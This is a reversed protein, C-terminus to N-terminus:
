GAPFKKSLNELLTRGSQEVVAAAVLVTLVVAAGVVDFDVVIVVIL